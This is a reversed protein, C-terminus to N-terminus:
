LRYDVRPVVTLYTPKVDRGDDFDDVWEVMRPPLRMEAIWGCGGGMDLGYSAHAREPEVRAWTAGTQRKLALAVPCSEYSERVGCAIDEATIMLRLAPRMGM